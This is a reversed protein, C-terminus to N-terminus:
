LNGGLPLGAAVIGDAIRRLEATFDRMQALQRRKAASTRAPNNEDVETALKRRLDAAKSIIADIDVDFIDFM